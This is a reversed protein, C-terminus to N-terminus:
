KNRERRSKIKAAIMTYYNGSIEKIKKKELDSILGVAWLAFPYSMVLLTDFTLALWLPDKGVIRSLYYIIIGVLLFGAMRMWEFPIPFFRDGILHLAVVKFTISVFTSVVAGWVGYNSILVYNLILNVGAMAFNVYSWYETKKVISIGLGVHTDLSYVIYALAIAPTYNAAYWYEAPSIIKIIDHVFISVALGSFIMLAMYYTAIKAFIEPPAGDKYLAFRRPAWIQMFPVRIFYHIVNGLRYGLTYIGVDAVSLYGRIFYRDSANVILSALNAPIIPLSYRLMNKAAPISLRVGFQMILYPLTIVAFVASVILNGLFIGILGKELYVIFYIILLLNATTKVISFILYVASKEKVRLYTYFLEVMNSLYLNALALIIYIGQNSDELIWAAAKGSIPVLAILFPTTTIFVGVLATSFISKQEKPDDTDYYFRYIADSIGLSIVIGIIEITIGVLQLIGYDNTTLYHTYLPILLFGVIRNLIQAIGYTAGHKSLRKLEGTLNNSNKAM